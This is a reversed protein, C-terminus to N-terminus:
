FVVRMTLWAIMAPVAIAAFNVLIIDSWAISYGEECAEM